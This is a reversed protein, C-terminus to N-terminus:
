EESDSNNEYERDFQSFDVDPLLENKVHDLTGNM